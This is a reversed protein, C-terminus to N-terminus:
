QLKMVLPEAGAHVFKVQFKRAVRSTNSCRNLYDYGICDHAYRVSDYM